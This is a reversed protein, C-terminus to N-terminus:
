AHHFRRQCIFRYVEECIFLFRTKLTGSLELSFDIKEVEIGIIFGEVEKGYTKLLHILSPQHQSYMQHHQRTVEGIPTFTVTGPSLGFYTSDIIFLLDGDEIKGLAYDIDTEGFILEIQEEKLRPSLKEAVEIGIGDDGMIRNGIAICKAVMKSLGLRCHHIATRYYM